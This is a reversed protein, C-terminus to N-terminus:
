YVFLCVTLGSVLCDVSWGILTWLCIAMCDILQGVLWDQFTLLCIAMCDILQGFDILSLLSSEALLEKVCFFTLIRVALFRVCLHKISSALVLLDNEVCIVCGLYWGVLCISRDLIQMDVLQWLYNLRSACAATLMQHLVYKWAYRRVLVIIQLKTFLISYSMSYM